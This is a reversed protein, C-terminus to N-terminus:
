PLVVKQGAELSNPWQIMPNLAKLRDATTGYRNAVSWLSEGGACVYIGSDGKGSDSDARNASEVFEFEYAVCDPQAEGVMTFSAFVAPFSEEKTLRLMGSNGDAFVDALRTFETMATDGVFEGKGTVVRMGCGLDQLISGSLPLGIERINRVYKIEVKEPNFPWIYNKYSMPQLSM